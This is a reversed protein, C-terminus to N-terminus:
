PATTAAYKSSGSNGISNTAIVRFRYFVGSQLGTVTYSTNTSGTSAAKTWTWRNNQYRGYTVSYDTIPSGNDAPASWTLDVSGATSGATASLGTPTDPKKANPTDTLTETSPGIANKARVQFDYSTGNTLGTVTYEPYVPDSIGASAWANWNSGSQRYRYEYDTIPSGGDYKPPDWWLEVAAHEDSTGFYTPVGPVATGTPTASVTASPGTGVSNKALVEFDYTTSNTLDSITVYSQWQEASWANWTGGSSRYRYQYNMSGGRIIGYGDDAPRTWTLYVSANGATASLYQPVSPTTPPPVTVVAKDSAPGTGIANVARIKFAYTTGADWQWLYADTSTSDLAGSEEWSGDDHTDIVYEYDTIPSGGDDTPADWELYISGNSQLAATLNRTKGPATLSFPTATVKASQTGIGGTNRARVLFAYRTDNTLGTVTHSTSTSGTLKWSRWTGDDNTDLRYEYAIVPTGTSPTNWSLRVQGNEATARLNRPASPPSVSSDVPLATSKVSQTSSGASNKARVQFGYHRGNPVPVTVSTSGTPM